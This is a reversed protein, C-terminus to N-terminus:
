NAPAYNVVGLLVFAVVALSACVVKFHLLTSSITPINKGIEEVILRMFMNFCKLLDSKRGSKRETKTNAKSNEDM